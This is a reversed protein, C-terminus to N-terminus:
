GVIVSYGGYTAFTLSMKQVDKANSDYAINTLVCNTITIINPTDPDGDEIEVSGAQGVTFGYGSAVELVDCTIEASYMGIAHSAYGQNVFTTTDLAEAKSNVSVNTAPVGTLAGIKLVATRGSLIAM